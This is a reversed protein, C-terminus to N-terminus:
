RAAESPAAALTMGRQLARLRAEILLQRCQSQVRYGSSQDCVALEALVDPTAVLWDSRAGHEWGGLLAALVLATTAMAAVACGLRPARALSHQVAMPTAEAAHQPPACAMREFENM